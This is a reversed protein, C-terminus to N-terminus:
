RKWPTHGAPKDEQEPDEEDEDDDDSSGFQESEAAKAQAEDDPEADEEPEEGPEEEDSDGFPFGTEERAEDREEPSANEDQGEDVAENEPDSTPDGSGPQGEEMAEEPSLGEEAQAEGPAVLVGEGCNPCVDGAAANGDSEIGDEPTPDEANEQEALAPDDPGVSGAMPNETSVSVPQSSFGEGCVPCVLDDQAQEDGIGVDGMPQGTEDDLGDRDADNISDEVGQVDSVDMGTPDADDKRLDLKQALELDPDQFEKPPQVFGCVACSNGDYSTSEGCIPCEEDRLTDIDAPAKTEGYARREAFPRRGRNAHLNRPGRAPDTTEQSFQDHGTDKYADQWGARNNREITQLAKTNRDNPNEEMNRRKRVGWTVAQVESPSVHQGDRASIHAAADQYLKEAHRYFHPKGLLTQGVLKDEGHLRRGAAVAMAHVDVCVKDSKEGTSPDLGGHNILHRFAQTKPGNLITHHEGEDGAGDLIKQSKAQHSETINMGEGPGPARGSHMARLAHHMNVGWEMQPSYSALLASAKNRGHGTSEGLHHALLQADPYWRHGDAKEEPTAADYHEVINHHTAGLHEWAPHTGPDPHEKVNYAFGGAAASRRMGPSHDTISGCVGCDTLAGWTITDNSFCSGCRQIGFQATHRVHSEKRTATTRLDADVDLSPGHEVKGLVFATPDAPDEVLLSNEFFRLGFCRERVLHNEPTGSATVTRIRQGKMAPIHRCYELPTTAVNACKSCMSREVDVGMSTRDIWGKAVAEALKPFRVADVEMLGEVWTDPSGDPNTDDHLAADVIVGRARRHDENHHNVFVPKGIFTKWGTTRGDGRIEEPTFEDYNDNCRSSIMRSRVYLYGPRPTYDFEVRHATRRLAQRGGTPAYEADLFAVSAYKRITM